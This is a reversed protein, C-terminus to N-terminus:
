TRDELGQAADCLWEWVNLAFTRLTYIHFRNEGICHITAPTHHIATMVFHGPKIHQDAFDILAVAALLDRARNGELLMRTRGSSLPTLYIGDHLAPPEGLVWVQKSGTRMLTLNAQAIAVGVKSPVKGLAKKLAKEGGAVQTLQFGPAENLTIGDREFLANAGLPSHVELM